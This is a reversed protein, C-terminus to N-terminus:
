WIFNQLETLTSIIIVNTNSFILLCSLFVLGMPQFWSLAAVWQMNLTFRTFNCVQHDSTLGLLCLYCYIQKEPNSPAVTLQPTSWSSIWSLHAFISNYLYTYM